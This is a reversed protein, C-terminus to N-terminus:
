LKIELKEKTKMRNIKGSDTREFKNIFYINKPLEFKSLVSEFLEKNLKSDLKGEIVLILKEGLIEDKLSSIFFPSHIIKILKSEVIEPQIKIGGSNIIFDSRGIWKFHKNDLLQVIDNTIIKQCELLPSEIVLQNDKHSFTTAGIATFYDETILGVKRMAIHSITETMGFTHYVTIKKEKLQNELSSSIEGGGIIINKCKRIKEVSENLANKLQIPVMAIFDIEEEIKNFIHSNVDIVSLKLKLIISRVLMMKGAITSPSLCLIAKDGKKINLYEGTMQASEIMKSKLLLISKPKGTSGSTKTIIFDSSDNWNLVFNEVENILDTDNTLYKITFSDL